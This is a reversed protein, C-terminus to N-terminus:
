RLLHELDIEIRKRAVGAAPPIDAEDEGAQVVDSLSQLRETLFRSPKGYGHADDRARPRHYYRLPVYVALSRRPRTLAVYFLRREEELGEPTSLAMDAPINGDSAHIVHVHDWELGKASHITSLVLYDEDLGPPGAFGASSLPPDLLLDAVFRDLSPA